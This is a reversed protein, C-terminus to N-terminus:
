RALFIGVIVCIVALITAIRMWLFKQKARVPFLREYETRVRRTNLAEALNKFPRNTKPPALRAVLRRMQGEIVLRVQFVLVGLFILGVGFSDRTM